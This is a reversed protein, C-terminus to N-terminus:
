RRSLLMAQYYVKNMIISLCLTSTIESNKRSPEFIRNAENTTPAKTGPAVPLIGHSVKEIPMAMVADNKTMAIFSDFFSSIYHIEQGKIYEGAYQSENEIQPRYFALPLRGHIFINEIYDSDRYECNVKRDHQEIRFFLDLIRSRRM